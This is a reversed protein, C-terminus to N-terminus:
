RRELALRVGLGVLVFGSVADLARRARGRRLVDGARAVVSAYASLWILSLGAHISALLLSTALVPDHPGIFQPLFTTYFVAIKPNLLNTLLGNRFPRGGSSGSEAAAAPVASGRRTRWLTQLGLFILYGAGVFKVVTYATASAALVAALGAVTLLGWVLCGTVIGLTARAAASRGSALAARTVVAVDPGPVVTLLALVLVAAVLSSLVSRM